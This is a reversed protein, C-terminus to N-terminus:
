FDLDQMSSSQAFRRLLAHITTSPLGIDVLIHVELIGTLRLHFNYIEDRHIWVTENNKSGCTGLQRELDSKHGSKYVRLTPYLSEGHRCELRRQGRSKADTTFLWNALRFKQTVTFGQKTFMMICSGM